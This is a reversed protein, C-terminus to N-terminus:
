SIIEENNIVKEINIDFLDDIEDESIIKKLVKKVKKVNRSVNNVRHMDSSLFTVWGNALYYKVLKEEERGYKGIVSMYNSQLLVGLDLLELIKDPKKMYISYREPHALIPKYGYDILRQFIIPTDLRYGMLPIEVLIYKSGNQTSIKNNELLEVINETIYIENGLYLNVDINEEKLKEKLTEVLEAKKNNDATYNSGEIYHPTVIIDTVGAKYQAKIMKISEEFNRSGDDIGPLIHNHMDKM